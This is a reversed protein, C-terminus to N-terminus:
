VVRRCLHWSSLHQRYEFLGIRQQPGAVRVRRMQRRLLLRPKLALMPAVFLLAGIVKINSGPLQGLLPLVLRPLCPSNSTTTARVAALGVRGGAWGSCSQGGNPREQLDYCGDWQGLPPDGPDPGAASPALADAGDKHGVKYGRCINHLHAPGCPCAASAKAVTAAPVRAVAAAMTRDAIFSHAPNM